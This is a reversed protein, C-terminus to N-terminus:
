KLLHPVLKEIIRSGVLVITNEQFFEISITAVVRSEHVRGYVIESAAKPFLIYVTTQSTFITFNVDRKLLNLYDRKSVPSDVSPCM